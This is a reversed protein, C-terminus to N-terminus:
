RSWEASFSIVPFTIITVWFFGNASVRRRADTWPLWARVAFGDAPRPGAQLTGGLAAARETMGVIGRSM